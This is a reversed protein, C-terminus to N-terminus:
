VEAKTYSFDESKPTTTASTEPCRTSRIKKFVKFVRAVPQRSVDWSVSRFFSLPETRGLLPRSPGSPSYLYLQVREEVEASSPHPHNVGSGTRKVGLFSVRYGNYLLSPPGWRRDLRTRFIEAGGPNLVPGDLGYRTATDVSSDRGV